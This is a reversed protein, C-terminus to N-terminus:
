PSPYRASGGSPLTGLVAKGQGWLSDKDCGRSNVLRNPRVALQARRSRHDLWAAPGGLQARFEGGRLWCSAGTQRLMNFMPNSKQPALGSTKRWAGPTFSFHQFCFSNFFIGILLSFHASTKM